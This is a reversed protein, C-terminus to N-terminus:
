FRYSPHRQLGPRIGEALLIQDAVVQPQANCLAERPSQGFTPRSAREPAFRNRAVIPLPWFVSSNPSEPLDIEFDRASIYNADNASVSRPFASQQLDKGADCFRGFPSHFDFASHGPQQFDSGTKLWFQGTAFVNAQKTV